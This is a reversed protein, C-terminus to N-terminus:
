GSEPQEAKAKARAMVVSRPVFRLVSMSSTITDMAADQGDSKAQKEEVASQALPIPQSGKSATSGAPQKRPLRSSGRTHLNHATEVRSVGHEEEQDFNVSPPELKANRFHSQRTIGGKFNRGRGRRHYDQRLMSNRYDLGDNVVFFDYDRPFGHKDITHLKRKFWTHFVRECDELFCAYIKEGRAKRAENIPDHNEAQHLLLYHDSPFNKRCGVCRNLHEKRYHIEYAEHTSFPMPEHPPLRCKMAAAMPIDEDLHFVKPSHAVETLPPSLPLGHGPLVTGPENSESVSDERRRRKSM